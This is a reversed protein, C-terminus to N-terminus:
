TVFLVLEPWEAESSARIVVGWLLAGFGDFSSRLTSRCFASPVARTPRRERQGSTRPCPMAGTSASRLTVARFRLARILEAPRLRPSLGRGLKIARGIYAAGCLQRHAPVGDGDVNSGFRSCPIWLRGTHQGMLRVPNRHLPRPTARGLRLPRDLCSFCEGSRLTWAVSGRPRVCVKPSRGATSSPRDSLALTV